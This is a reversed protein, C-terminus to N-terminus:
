FDADPDGVRLVTLGLSHWMRCVQLRDDLVFDINYKGRIEREFIERKVIADKRTDGTPRMLLRNTGFLLGYRLLWALTETRVKEQRGSVFLITPPVQRTQEMLIINAVPINLLDTGCLEEEYPGRGSHTALTGDLDCIVASPLDSNWYILEAKPALYRKYMDRIVKEGTSNPRQLDRKICEEVDTDFRQYSFEIKPFQKLIYDQFNNLRAPNLNTADVLVDYGMSLATITCAREFQTILDEQRPLWYKGRMYRLDDRNVRIWNTNKQCFERSWTSKGSAILGITFKVKNM